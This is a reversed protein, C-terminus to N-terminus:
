KGDGELPQFWRGSKGCKPATVSEWWGARRQRFASGDRWGRNPSIPPGTVLWRVLDDETPKEVVWNRPSLCSHLQTDTGHWRCDICLKTM